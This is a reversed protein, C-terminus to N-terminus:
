PRARWPTADLGGRSRRGQAPAAAPGGPLFELGRAYQGPDRGGARALVLRNGTGAVSGARNGLRGAVPNGGPLQKRVLRRPRRNGDHRFESLENGATSAPSLRPK